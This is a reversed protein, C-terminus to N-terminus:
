SKNQASINRSQDVVILGSTDFGMASAQAVLSQYTAEDMQPTRSLIWLYERNPGAVMAYSYNEKDLAIVHYGGYFPGFFSVKLSAVDPPGIFKARGRAVENVNKEPNFGRNIVSVKNGTRAYEASIDTLGREFPHDLRAIEYWTGMYRDVDFGSVPQLGKPVRTQACGTIGALAFGLMAIMLLRKM